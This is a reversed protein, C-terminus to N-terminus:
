KAKPQGVQKKARAIFANAPENGIMEVPFLDDINVGFFSALKKKTKPTVRSEFGSELYYLCAISVGSGAAIQLQTLGRNKRLSKLKNWDIMDPVPDWEIKKM